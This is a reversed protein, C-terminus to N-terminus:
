IVEDIVGRPRLTVRSAGALREPKGSGDRDFPFIFILTSEVVCNICTDVCM